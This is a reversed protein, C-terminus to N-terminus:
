GNIKQVTVYQVDFLCSLCKLRKIHANRYHRHLEKRGFSATDCIDCVYIRVPGERAKETDNKTKRDIEHSKEM